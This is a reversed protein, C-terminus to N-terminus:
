AVREPRGMRVNVVGESLHASHFAAERFWPFVKEVLPLDFRVWDARTALWPDHDVHFRRAVGNRCTYATYRELLFEDTSGPPCLGATDPRHHPFALHLATKEERGHVSLHDVGNASGRHHSFGGMRYPLGYTLPGLRLSLPNPIWEALFQIGTVDAHRVYTRVNLFFHDSIPALLWRGLRGTGPAHMNELTFFVLSVFARGDCTDLAFPVQPALVAPSLSFHVFLMRRWDAIFRAEGWPLRRARGAPCPAAGWPPSHTLAHM